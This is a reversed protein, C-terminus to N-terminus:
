DRRRWQRNAVDNAQRYALLDRPLRTRRFRKRRRDREQIMSHHETKFWPHRKKPGVAERSLRINEPSRFNYCRLFRYSITYFSNEM